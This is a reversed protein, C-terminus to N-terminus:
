RGGFGRGSRNHRPPRVRGRVVHEPELTVQNEIVQPEDEEVVAPSRAMNTVAFTIVSFVVLLGVVIIVLEM